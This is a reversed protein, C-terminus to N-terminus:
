SYLPLSLEGFTTTTPFGHSVNRTSRLMHINPLMSETGSVYHKLKQPGALVRCFFTTCCIQISWSKYQCLWASAIQSHGNQLATTLYIKGGSFFCRTLKGQTFITCDRLIEHTNRQTHFFSALSFIFDFLRFLVFFVCNM